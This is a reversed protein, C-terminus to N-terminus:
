PARATLFPPAHADIVSIVIYKQGCAHSVVKTLAPDHSPKCLLTSLSHEFGEM